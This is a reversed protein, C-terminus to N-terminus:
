VIMLVIIKNQMQAKSLDYIIIKVVTIALLM